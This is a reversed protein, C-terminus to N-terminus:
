RDISLILGTIRDLDSVDHYTIQVTGGKLKSAIRVQTGLHRKLKEEVDLVASFSRFVAKKRPSTQSFQKVWKETDRVSLGKKKIQRALRVQDGTKTLALLAKAHGSSLKGSGIEEQIELPLGLLRLANSVTSRNKGVQHAIEEQKMQFEQNLRRFGRAEEIPNLDERQINEILALGLLQADSADRILGPIKKLGAAKSARWRREGAILEFQGDQRRRLIVPQLLGSQKISETLEQLGAPDFVRRPQYRNPIIRDVEIQLVRMAEAEKTVGEFLAGLGKGLAKKQM